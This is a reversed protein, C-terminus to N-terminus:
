QATASGDVMWTVGAQYRLLLQVDPDPKRLPGFVHPVCMVYYNCVTLGAAAGMYQVAEGIIQAGLTEYEFPVYAHLLTTVNYRFWDLKTSGGHEVRLFGNATDVLATVDPLTTAVPTPSMLPMLFFQSMFEVDPPAVVPMYFKPLGM